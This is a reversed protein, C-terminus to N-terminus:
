AEADEPAVWRVEAPLSCVGISFPKDVRGSERETQVGGTGTMEEIM